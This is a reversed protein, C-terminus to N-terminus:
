QFLDLCEYKWNLEGPSVLIDNRGIETNIVAHSFNKSFYGKQRIIFYSKLVILYKTGTPNNVIFSSHKQTSHYFNCKM